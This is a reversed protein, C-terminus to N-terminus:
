SQWKIKQNFQQQPGWQCRLIPFAEDHPYVTHEARRSLVVCLSAYPTNGKLLQGIIVYEGPSCGVESIRASHLPQCLTLAALALHLSHRGSVLQTSRKERSPHSWSVQIPVNTAGTSRLDEQDSLLWHPSFEMGGVWQPLRTFRPMRFARRWPWTLSSLLICAQQFATSSLSYCSSFVWNIHIINETQAPSWTAQGDWETVLIVVAGRTNFLPWLTSLCLQTGLARCGPNQGLCRVESGLSLGM